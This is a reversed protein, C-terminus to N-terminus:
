RFKFLTGKLVATGSNTVTIYETDNTQGVDEATLVKPSGDVIEIEPAPTALQLTKGDGSVAFNNDFISTDIATGNYEFGTTGSLLTRFDGPGHYDATWSGTWNTAFNMTGGVTFQWFYADITGSGSM